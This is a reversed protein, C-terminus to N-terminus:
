VSKYLSTLAFIAWATELVVFPYFEILYASFGCLVAGAVNLSNYWLSDATLLKRSNLIFAGLLITVGATAIIDAFSMCNRKIGSTGDM